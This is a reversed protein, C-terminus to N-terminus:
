IYRMRTFLVNMCLFIFNPSLHFDALVHSSLWVQLMGFSDLLVIEGIRSYRFYAKSLIRTKLGLKNAYVFCILYTTM